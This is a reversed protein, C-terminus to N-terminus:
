RRNRVSNFAAIWESLKDALDEYYDQSTGSASVIDDWENIDAAALAMLADRVEVVQAIPNSETTM